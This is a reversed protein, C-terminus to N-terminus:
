FPSTGADAKIQNGSTAIYKLQNSCHIACREVVAPWGPRLLLEGPDALDFAFEMDPRETFLQRMHVEIQADFLAVAIDIPHTFRGALM